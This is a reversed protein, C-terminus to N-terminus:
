PGPPTVVDHSRASPSHSVQTGIIAAEYDAADAGHIAELIRGALAGPGYSMPLMAGHHLAGADFNIVGDTQFELWAGIASASNTSSRTASLGSRVDRLIARALAADVRSLRWLPNADLLNAATAGALKRPLLLGGDDIMERIKCQDYEGIRRTAVAV